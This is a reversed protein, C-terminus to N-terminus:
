RWTGSAPGSATSSCGSATVPVAGRRRRRDRGAVLGSPACRRVRGPRGRRRQVAPDAPRSSPLALVSGARSRSCCCASGPTSLDLGRPPRPGALGPSAFLLGNLVFVLAVANRRRAGHPLREARGTRGRAPRAPELWSQFGTLSAASMALEVEGQPSDCLIVVHGPYLSMQEVGDPERRSTTAVADSRQWVRKPRPSLTFIGSGSWSRAPTAASGSCGVAGPRRRGSATASSSPAATAPCCGAAYSSPSATSCSWSSSCASGSSCGGWM